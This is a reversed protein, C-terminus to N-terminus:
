NKDLQSLAPIAAKAMDFYVAIIEGAIAKLRYKETAILEINLTDDREITIDLNDKIFLLQEGIEETPFMARRLAAVLLKESNLIGAQGTLWNMREMHTQIYDPPNLKIRSVVKYCPKVTQVPMFFPAIILLM